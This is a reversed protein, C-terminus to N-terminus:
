HLLLHSVCHPILNRVFLIDPNRSDFLLLKVGLIHSKKSDHALEVLYIYISDLLIWKQGQCERENERLKM